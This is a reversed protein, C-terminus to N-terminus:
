LIIHLLWSEGELMQTKPVSDLDDYKATLVKIWQAIRSAEM